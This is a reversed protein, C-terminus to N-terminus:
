SGHSDVKNTIYKTVKSFFAEIPKKNNRYNYFKLM